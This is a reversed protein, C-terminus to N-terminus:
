DWQKKAYRRLAEDISPASITRGERVDREGEQIIKWLREEKKTLKGTKKAPEFSVREGEKPLPIKVLMYDRTQKVIRPADM